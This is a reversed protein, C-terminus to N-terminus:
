DDDYGVQLVGVVFEAFGHDGVALLGDVIWGFGADDDALVFAADFAFSEDVLEGFGSGDFFGYGVEFFGFRFEVEGYLAEFSAVSSSAAMALCSQKSKSSLGMVNSRTLWYRVAFGWTSPKRTASRASEPRAASAMMAMRAEISCPVAGIASMPASAMFSRVMALAEATREPVMLSASAFVLEHTSFFAVLCSEPHVESPMLRHM